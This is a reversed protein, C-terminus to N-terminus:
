VKRPEVGFQSMVNRMLTALREDASLAWGAAIAGAHFVRGGQPREWYIMECVVGDIPEGKRAFYDLITGDPRTRIGRALTIIGAPEDPMTAQDPYPLPTMRALTSLRVDAEHGVARPEGGGPAHGFRDDNSLGVERPTRFLPHDDTTVQYSGFSGAATSWWGLCELGLVKWAPYGCERMLSGRHGDLSHWLEGIPAFKAGGIASDYKRCEMVQADDDFTVRWFMTNGSLVVANGGGALFRDVGEYAEISWYESHGNIVLVRYGDLLHPNRHLDFDTVVDYDYNCKDLWIHAHREARMLHAYGLGPSSYVVSPAAVPWPMRMGLQYSPQGAAHDRYCCYAPALAHSNEYGSTDWMQEGTRHVAFPTASYAQWTNSSCLVVVPAKPLTDSKRVIFTVEYVQPKKDREFHLRGVYIGSRANVPVTWSHSTEWGCDYLDDAALRLGHGRRPDKQPEYNSFRPVTTADFSPGGVMWTGRNIIQGNRGHGSLDHVEQGREEDLPWCAILGDKAPTELGQSRYRRGIEDADLARGYIAPMALDGDLFLDSRGTVAAAGIRLAADGGRVPGLFDWAGVLQGDVWLAKRLGDWSGVLHTWTRLSLKPGRHLKAEDFQDGGGLYFIGQGQEDIGLGFGASGDADLQTILGQRADLRWPRVWCELSLATLTDEAAVGRSVHIYSGPYIPQTAAPSVDFAHVEEDATADAPDHGLRCVVLRYPETSSVRFRITDGAAVSREAYAHIGPLVVERHEPLQNAAAGADLSTKEGGLATWRGLSTAGLVGAASAKLFKRREDRSM